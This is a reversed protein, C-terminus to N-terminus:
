PEPVWRRVEIELEIGSQDFVARQIAQILELVDTATAGGHNVIFNGHLHSVQAKGISLGKLGLRDILQGAGLKEGQYLATPNKFICGASAETVPQAARKELLFDRARARVATKNDVELKLVAGVVIVADLADLGGNRYRPSTESRPVDRMEGDRTIIRILEVVDFLEGWRGGANMALGGGIQGPVGILGELGTWGLDSAARVVGPMSAGAWTVLRPNKQDFAPATIDTLSQADRKISDDANPDLDLADPTAPQDTELPRFTRGMRETTIVVGDLVGDAIILNAGGGLIRPEIGRERCAQYAALLEEPKSPELLYRAQGGVKLTTRQGLPVFERAVCPWKM